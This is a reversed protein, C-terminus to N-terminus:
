ARGRHRARGWGVTMGTKLMALHEGEGEGSVSVRM